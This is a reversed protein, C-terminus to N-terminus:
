SLLLTSREGPSTRGWTAFAKEAAHAALDVQKPTAEPIKIILDGTRPDLVPQSDGEGAVMKGGILFRTEPAMTQAPSTPM